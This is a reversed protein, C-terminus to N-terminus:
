PQKESERLLANVIEDLKSLFHSKDKQQMPKPGGSMVGMDRLHSNLERAALANGISDEKFERGKAELVRAGRKLCRDALPIDSTIVLDHKGTHEAIWDDAADFGAGVVVAEVMDSKPTQQYSNAVVFVKLKYRQAVKYVENKVSCGDADIYIDPM